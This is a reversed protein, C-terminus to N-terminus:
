LIAFMGAAFLTMGDEDLITIKTEDPELIAGLDSSTLAVVFLEDEELSDDQTIEVDICASTM